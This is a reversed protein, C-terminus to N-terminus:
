GQLIEVAVGDGDEFDEGFELEATEAADDVSSGQIAGV